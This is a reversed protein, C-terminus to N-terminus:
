TAVMPPVTAVAVGTAAAVVGVKTSVMYPDEWPPELATPHQNTNEMVRNQRGDAPTRSHSTAEHNGAPAVRNNVRMFYADEALKAIVEGVHHGQAQRAITTISMLCQEPTTHVRNAVQDLAENLNRIPLAERLHRRREAQKRNRDCRANKEEATENPPANAILEDEIIADLYRDTRDESTGADGAVMFIDRDPPYLGSNTSAVKTPTHEDDNPALPSGEKFPLTELYTICGSNDDILDAPKRDPWYVFRGAPTSTIVLGATPGSLLEETTNLESEFEIPDSGFDFEYSSDANYGPAVNSDSSYKSVIKKGARRATLAEADARSSNCLGYPFHEHLLVTGCSPEPAPKCSEIWPSM